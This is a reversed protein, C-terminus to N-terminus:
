SLGATKITNNIETTLSVKFPKTQKLLTFHYFFFIWAILTNTSVMTINSNFLQFWNNIPNHMDHTRNHHTM